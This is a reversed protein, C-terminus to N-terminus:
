QDQIDDAKETSFNILCVLEVNKMNYDPSNEDGFVATRFTNLTIPGALLVGRESLIKTLVKTDDQVSVNYDCEMNDMNDMFDQFSMNDINREIM